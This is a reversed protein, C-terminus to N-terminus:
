LKKFSSNLGGIYSLMEKRGTKKTSSTVFYPPAEEWNESLSKIFAEVNRVTAGPKNKDTKTFVVVFPVQWEGLQNIFELDIAQPTHRSDILVFLCVLNERKRIYSEIMNGWNNRAKQSVTAAYGYGPLDAINWKKKDSSIVEFHNILKTKGPTASTKALKTQGTIMNILSSKGVNSRGIFAYEPKDAPPCQKHTASSIVYKASIIEM